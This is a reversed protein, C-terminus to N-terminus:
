LPFFKYHLFVVGTSAGNTTPAHCIERASLVHRDHQNPLPTGKQRALWYGWEEGRAPCYDAGMTDEAICDKKGQM